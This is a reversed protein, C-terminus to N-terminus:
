VPSSVLLFRTAKLLVTGLNWSVIHGLGRKVKANAVVEVVAAIVSLGEELFFAIITVEQIEIAFINCRDCFSISITQQPIVEM